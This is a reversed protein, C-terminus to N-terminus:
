RRAEATEIYELLDALDQQTLGAELGEPMLSQGQSRMKRIRSRPVVDEKGYAQRVTIATATENAVLGVLSEGDETEVVYSVFEPRVERNPDLINVLLKEKGTNKVTVLDPGLAHGEGGLRHCSSCREQYFKRGRGADAQLNLSPMFADITAQRQSPLATGFIQEAKQRV